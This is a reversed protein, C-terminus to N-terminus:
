STTEDKKTFNFIVSAPLTKGQSTVDVREIFKGKLKYAMELGKTVAATDPQGSHDVKELLESHKKVLKDDPLYKEVILRWASTDSIASPDNEIALRYEAEIMADNQNYGKQMLELVKQTKVLKPLDNEASLKM